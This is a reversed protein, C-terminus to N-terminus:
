CIPRTAPPSQDPRKREKALAPDSCDDSLIFIGARDRWFFRSLCPCPVRRLLILFFLGLVNNDSITRILKAYRPNVTDGVKDIVASLAKARENATKYADESMLVTLIEELHEVDDAERLKDAIRWALDHVKAVIEAPAPEDHLEKSAVWFYRGNLELLLMYVEFAAQERRRRRDQRNQLLYSVWAAIASVGVGSAFAM